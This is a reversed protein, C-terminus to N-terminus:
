ATAYEPHEFRFVPCDVVCHRPSCDLQHVLGHYGSRRERERATAIAARRREKREVKGLPIAWDPLGNAVARAESQAIQHARRHIPFSGRGIMDTVVRNPIEAHLRDFQAALEWWLDRDDHRRLLEPALQDRAWRERVSFIVTADFHITVSEGGPIAKLGEIVARIEMRVNTTGAERGRIVYGDSGREIVAAWGGPFTRCGGRSRPETIASGDTWVHFRTASM